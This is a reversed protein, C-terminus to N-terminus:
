FANRCTAERAGHYRFRSRFTQANRCLVRARVKRRLGCPQRKYVDLHTYSVPRGRHALEVGEPLTQPELGARLAASEVIADLTHDDPATGIYYAAGQGYDNRTVAAYGSYFEDAYRCLTEATDPELMERFVGARGGSSLELEDESALSECEAVHMGLLECLGVPLREGFVLNNNRDKM